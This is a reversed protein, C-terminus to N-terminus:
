PVEEGRQHCCQLAPSLKRNLNPNAIHPLNTGHGLQLSKNLNKIRARLEHEQNM